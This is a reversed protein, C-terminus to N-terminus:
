RITTSATRGGISSDGTSSTTLRCGVMELVLQRFEVIKLAYVFPNIVSNTFCVINFIYYALSLYEGHYVGIIYAFYYLQAPAWLVAFCASVVVMTKIINVQARSVNGAAGRQQQQQQQVGIEAVQSNRKKLTWLMHGYCYIFFFLPIFYFMLIYTWGYFQALEPNPWDGQYLCSGGEVITAVLIWALLWFFAVLWSAALLAGKKADTFSTHHRIPFVIKIYREFTLAMLSFASASLFIWLLGEGELCICLTLGASGYFQVSPTMKYIFTVALMISSVLDMVTQNVVFANQLRSKKTKRSRYIVVLVVGNGVVGVCGIILTLVHFVSVAHSDGGDPAESTMEIDEM